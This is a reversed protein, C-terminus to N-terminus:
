VSYENRAIRKVSVYVTKCAFVVVNGQSYPAHITKTADIYVSPGRNKKILSPLLILPM